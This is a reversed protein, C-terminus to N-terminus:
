GILEPEPTKCIVISDAESIRATLGISEFKLIEVQGRLDRVARDLTLLDSRIAHLHGLTRDLKVELDYNTVPKGMLKLYLRAVALLGLLLFLAVSLYFTWEM